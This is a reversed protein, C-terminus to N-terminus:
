VEDRVGKIGRTVVSADGISFRELSTVRRLSKGEGISGIRVYKEFIERRLTDRRSAYM